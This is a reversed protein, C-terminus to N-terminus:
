QDCHRDEESSQGLSEKMDPPTPTRRVGRRMSEQRRLLGSEPLKRHSSERNLMKSSLERTLKRSSPNRQLKGHASTRLLQRNSGERSLKNHASSSEKMLNKVSGQRNIGLDRTSSKRQQGLMQRRSSERNLQRQSRQRQGLGSMRRMLRGRREPEDEDEQAALMDTHALFRSYVLAHRSYEKYIMSIDEESNEGSNTMSVVASRAEAVYQLRLEKQLNSIYKELGRVPAKRKCWGELPGYLSSPPARLIEQLEEDSATCSVHLATNFGTDIREIGEKDNKRVHKTTFKAALRIAQFESTTWWTDWKEEPSLEDRCPITAVVTAEVEDFHVRRGFSSSADTWSTSFSTRSSRMSSCTSTGKTTVTHDDNLEKPRGLGAKKNLVNELSVNMTAM